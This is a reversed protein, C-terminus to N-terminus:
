PGTTDIDTLRVSKNTLVTPPFASPIKSANVHPKLYIGPRQILDQVFAESFPELDVAAANPINSTIRARKARRSTRSCRFGVAFDPKPAILATASAMPHPTANWIM